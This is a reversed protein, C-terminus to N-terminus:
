PSFTNGTQGSLGGYAPLNTIRVHFPGPGLTKPFYVVLANETVMMTGLAPQAPGTGGPAVAATASPGANPNVISAVGPYIGTGAITVSQAPGGLFRTDTAHSGSVISINPPMAPVGASVSMSKIGSTGFVNSARVPITAPAAGVPVITTRAPYRPDDLNLWSGVMLGGINVAAMELNEGQLTVATGRQAPDPVFENIKPVCGAAVVPLWALIAARAHMCLRKM